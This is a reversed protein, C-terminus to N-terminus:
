ERKWARELFTLAYTDFSQRAPLLPLGSKPSGYLECVLGIADCHDKFTQAHSAHHVEDDPGSRTYLLLPPGDARFGALLFWSRYPQQVAIVARIGLVEGYGLYEAIMAGASTGMVGIRGPDVNWDQAKTKVFRVAEATHALIALYGAQDLLPYNVSVVAVGHRLARARLPHNKFQRKDGARFAGGHFYLLLPATATTDPLWVDLTSRAFAKSYRLDAHTPEQARAPALLLLAWVLGLAARAILTSAVPNLERRM